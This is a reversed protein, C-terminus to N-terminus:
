RRWGAAGHEFGHRDRLEIKLSHGTSSYPPPQLSPGIHITVIKQCYVIFLLYLDINRTARFFCLTPLPNSFISGRDIHTTVLSWWPRTWHILVVVAPIEQGVMNGM